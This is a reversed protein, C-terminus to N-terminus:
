VLAPIFRPQIRTNAHLGTEGNWRVDTFGPSLATWQYDYLTATGIIWWNKASDRVWEFNRTSMGNWLEKMGAESDLKTPTELIPVTGPTAFLCLALADRHALYLKTLEYQTMGVQTGTPATVPADGGGLLKFDLTSGSTPKVLKGITLALTSTTVNTNTEEDIWYGYDNSYPHGGPDLDTASWYRNVERKAVTLGGITANGKAASLGLDGAEEPCHDLEYNRAADLYLQLSVSIGAIWSGPWMAWTSYVRNTTNVPMGTATYSLEWTDTDNPDDNWDPVGYGYTQDYWYTSSPGYYLSYQTNRLPM